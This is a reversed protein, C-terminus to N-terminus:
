NSLRWVCVQLASATSARSEQRKETAGDHAVSSNNDEGVRDRELERSTTNRQRRTYNALQRSYEQLPSTMALFLIISMCVYIWNIHRQASSDHLRHRRHGSLDYVM